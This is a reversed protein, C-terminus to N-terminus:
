SHWFRRHRQIWTRVTNRRNGSEIIIEGHRATNLWHIGLRKYRDVVESSPHGYRNHSGASVVAIKPRVASLFSLTSSTNSGHHPVVLVSSELETGYDRVLAQEAKVEIDGTLLIRGGGTIVQVVCSRDNSSLRAKGVPWLIRFEVENWFWTEGSRCGRGNKLKAAEGSLVDDVALNLIIAELGGAHDAAVHSIIIRDLRTIGYRRLAPLLVREGTSFQGYSPGTDFLMAHDRTQVLIALGQGIDFVRMRVEHDRLDSTLTSGALLIITAVGIVILRLQKVYMGTGILVSLVILLQQNSSLDLTSFGLQNLVALPEMLRTILWGSAGLLKGGISEGIFVLIFCGSLILPVILFGFAPVYFLNVFPSILSINGFYLAQIPLLGVFLAFQIICLTVVYDRVTWRLSGKGFSRHRLTSYKDRYVKQARFIVWVAVFSLWFGASSVDLPNLIGVTLMALGLFVEPRYLRNALVGVVTYTSLMTLARVAPLPFGALAAYVLGFLLGGASVLHPRPINGGSLLGVCWLLRIILCGLLSALGVHLGSIAVLHGIGSMRFIKWQEASIGSREGIALALIIGLAPQEGLADQIKLRLRHRLSLVINESEHKGILLHTGKSVYGTAHIHDRLYKLERDHTSANRYGRVPKLKIQLQWKQGPELLPRDGYWRLRVNSRSTGTVTGVTLRDLKFDFQTHITRVVPISNVIGVATVPQNLFHPDPRAELQYHAYVTAWLIGFGICALYHSWRRTVLLCFVIACCAWLFGTLSAFLHILLAGVTYGLAITFIRPM